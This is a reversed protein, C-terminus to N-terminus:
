TVSSSTQWILSSKKAKRIPPGEISVDGKPWHEPSLNAIKAASYLSPNLSPFTM